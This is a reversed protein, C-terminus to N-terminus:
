QAYPNVRESEDVIEDEIDDVTLWSQDRLLQLAQVMADVYDDHEAKPFSCMQDVVEEAWPYTRGPFKEHEPLYVLGNEVLYSVGHARQVKDAKGPNYKRVPVGARQLDHILSIGSGKNEIVVIDTRKGEDPGYFTKYERVAKKRLDPYEMFVQWADMLMVGFGKGEGLSFVGLAVFASPDNETEETFATDWSQIIYEFEPFERKAPYYQFAARKFIGGGEPAPDQMYQGSFAYEGMQRRTKRLTEENERDEHLLSGPLVVKRFNGISITTKDKFMVPLNLHEWDGENQLLHGTLDNEHLRQMIVIIVDNAKDNLRTSFSQDFWTLQGERVVKSLADQASHLDDVILFNGGEGTTTAGVSTAIRHGRETTLYKTKQNNDSAIRTKPFCNRYWDSEMMFRCDVSHKISLEKSYSTSMIKLKPDKGLLYAPFAVNCSVSKLQRPPINIILRKIERRYCATLYEAICDIHWNHYYPVGPTVIKFTKEIFAALDQRCFAYEEDISFKVNSKM